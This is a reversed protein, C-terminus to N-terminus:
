LVIPVKLSKYIKVVSAPLFGNTPRFFGNSARLGSCQLRSTAPHIGRLTQLKTLAVDVKAGVYDICFADDGIPAGAVKTGRACINIDAFLDRDADTM